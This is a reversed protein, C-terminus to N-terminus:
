KHSQLISAGATVKHLWIVFQCSCTRMVNVLRALLKDSCGCVSQYIVLLTRTGHLLNPLHHKRQRMGDGEHAEPGGAHDDGAVGEEAHPGHVEQVGEIHLVLGALHASLLEGIM